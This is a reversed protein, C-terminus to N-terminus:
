GLHPERLVIGVAEGVLQGASLALPHADGPGQRHLRLEDDAILGDGGQVNRNLGLDHSRRILRCRSCFRMYRNMEWSRDMTLCMESRMPTMYRPLITSSDGALVQESLGQVGVRPGQERGDGGRIRFVFLRALANLKGPLDRAGDIGRRAALEPGAAGWAM